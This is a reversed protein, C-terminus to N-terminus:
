GIPNSFLGIMKMAGGMEGRNVEIRRIQGDWIVSAVYM